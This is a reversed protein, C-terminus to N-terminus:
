KQFTITVAGTSAKPVQFVHNLGAEWRVLNLDEMVVAKFEIQAGQPFTRSGKWTPFTTATTALQLGGKGWDWNSLEDVNGVVHIEQGVQTM